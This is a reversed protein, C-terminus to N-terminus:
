KLYNYIYSLEDNLNIENEIMCGLYVCIYQLQSM